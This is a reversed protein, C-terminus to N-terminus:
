ARRDHLPTRRLGPHPGHRRDGRGHGAPGPRPRQEQGVPEARGALHRGAREGHRSGQAPLAHRDHWPDARERPHRAARLRAGRGAKLMHPIQYKMALFVGRVNTNNVRDWEAASYEHLPKEITIGANNFAVDLRGYTSAARDIFAQVEDEVLVDAKVYLAEGGASRFASTRTSSSTCAKM